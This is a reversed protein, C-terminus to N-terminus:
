KKIKGSGEKEARCSALLEQLDKSYDREPEKEDYPLAKYVTIEFSAAGHRNWLEQLPHNPHGGATLQFRNSNIDARTDTSADFFWRGEPKCCVAIVGMDPKRSKYELLLEKRRQNDM